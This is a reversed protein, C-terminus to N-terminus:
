ARLGRARRAVSRAETCMVPAIFRYGQGPVNEVYRDGPLSEGLARRLSAVTVKLNGDEVVRRPWAIAMLEKKTVLNGAREVLAALIAFARKGIRLTEEGKLLLHQAPLLEFPGFLYCREAPSNSLDTLGNRREYTRMSKTLISRAHM